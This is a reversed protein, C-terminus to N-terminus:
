DTCAAIYAKRRVRDASDMSSYVNYAQSARVLPSSETSRPYAYHMALSYIFEYWDTLGAIHDIKEWEDEERTPIVEDKPEEVGPLDLKRKFELPHGIFPFRYGYYDFYNTLLEAAEKRITEEGYHSSNQRAMACAVLREVSGVQFISYQYGLFEIIGEM